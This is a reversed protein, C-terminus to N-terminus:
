TSFTFKLFLIFFSFYYYRTFTKSIFCEAQSLSLSFFVKIISGKAFSLEEKTSAKFEHLAKAEMTSLSFVSAGDRREDEISTVDAVSKTNVTILNQNM